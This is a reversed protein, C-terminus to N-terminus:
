RARQGATIAATPSFPPLAQKSRVDATKPSDAASSSMTEADSLPQAAESEKVKQPTQRLLSEGIAFFLFLLPTTIPQNLSTVAQAGYAIMAAAIVIAESRDRRSSLRILLSISLGAYCLLGVLGGTVLYQLYENHANDFLLYANGLNETLILRVCDLGQGFLKQPLSFDHIYLSSLQQWIRGRQAGWADDFRLYPALSSPTLEPHIATFFVLAALVLMVCLVAAIIVIHRLKVYPLAPFLENSTRSYFVAFLSIGLLIWAWPMELLFRSIGESPFTFVRLAIQCSTLAAFFLSLVILWDHLGKQHRVNQHFSYLLFAILGLYASDIHAIILACFGLFLFAEYGYRARQTKTHHLFMAAIPISLCLLQAFFTVNGITSLFRSQDEGTLRDFFGLPDFGFANIIGLAAVLASAVLFVHLLLKRRAGHRSVLFYVITIIFTFAYGMYRGSEGSFSERLYPTVLLTMTHSVLMGLMWWDSISLTHVLNRLAFAQHNWWFRICLICLSVAIYSLSLFIFCHFKADTIHFFGNETYFLFITFMGFCYLLTATQLYREWALNQKNMM